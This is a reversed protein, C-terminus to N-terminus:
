KKFSIVAKTELIDDFPITMIEKEKNKKGVLVELEIQKENLSILVGTEKKDKKTLVEIEKGIYNKYQRLLKFPRDLGSSSVKLEYDEEDRDYRGEIQRSIAVCESIPIGKDGDVIVNIVNSKNVSVEVLFRDGEGLYNNVINEIDKKNIM